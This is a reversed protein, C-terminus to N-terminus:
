EKLIAALRKAIETAMKSDRVALADCFVDFAKRAEELRLRADALSNVIDLVSEGDPLQPGNVANHGADIEWDQLVGRRKDSIM